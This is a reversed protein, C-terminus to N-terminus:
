SNSLSAHEQKTKEEWDVLVSESVTSIKTCCTLSTKSNIYDFFKKVIDFLMKNFGNIFICVKIM